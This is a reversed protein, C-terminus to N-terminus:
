EYQNTKETWKDRKKWEDKKNMEKLYNRYFKLSDDCTQEVLNYDITQSHLTQGKEM